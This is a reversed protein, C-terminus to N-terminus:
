HNDNRSVPGTSDESNYAENRLHVNPLGYSAVSPKRDLMRHM